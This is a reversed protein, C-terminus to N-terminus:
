VLFDEDIVDTLIDDLYERSFSSTNSLVGHRSALEETYDELPYVRINTYGSGYHTVVGEFKM